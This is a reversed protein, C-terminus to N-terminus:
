EESLFVSKGGGCSWEMGSTEQSKRGRGMGTPETAMFVIGTLTVLSEM